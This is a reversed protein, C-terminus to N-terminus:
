ASKRRALLPLRKLALAMLEVFREENLRDDQRLQFAGVVAVGLLSGIAVLPLTWIPVISAGVLLIAAVV